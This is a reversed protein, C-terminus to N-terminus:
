QSNITRGNLSNKYFRFVSPSKSRNIYYRHTKKINGTFNIYKANSAADSARNNGVRGLRPQMNFRLIWKCSFKPKGELCRLARDNRNSTIYINETFNVQEVWTKHAKHSSASSSIVINKFINDPLSHSINGEVIGQLVISGMSHTLLSLSHDHGETNKIEYLIDIIHKLEASSGKAQNDPFGSRGNWSPWTFMLVSVNYQDRISKILDEEITKTPHQGRGHVFLVIPRNSTNFINSIVEKYCRKEYYRSHATILGPTITNPTKKKIIKGACNNSIGTDAHNNHQIATAAKTSDFFISAIFFILIPTINRYM